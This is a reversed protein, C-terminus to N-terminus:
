DSLLLNLITLSNSLFTCDKIEGVLMPIPLVNFTVELMDLLKKLIIFKMDMLLLESFTEEM